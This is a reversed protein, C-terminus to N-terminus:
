AAVALLQDRGNRKAAYLAADAREMLAEGSEGGQREVLGASCTVGPPTARRLHEVRARADQISCGKLLIAFEEGGVRALVDSSRLQAQWNVASTKLQRDGALHGHSDNYAKFHDLDLM